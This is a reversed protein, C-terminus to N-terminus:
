WGENWITKSGKEFNKSQIKRLILSKVEEAIKIARETEQESVKIIPPYRVGIYYKGLLDAKIDFLYNFDKDYKLSEHILMTISHTFPYRNVKHLLYAKLYKEVAQQVLLCTHRYRKLRFLDKAAEFDEEAAELLEKLDKRM